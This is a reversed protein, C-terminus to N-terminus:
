VEFKQDVLRDIKSIIAPNKMLADPNKLVSKTEIWIHTCLGRLRKVDFDGETLFVFYISIDSGFIEKSIITISNKANEGFSITAIEENFLKRGVTGMASILGSLLAPEIKNSNDNFNRSYFSFGTSDCILFTLIM